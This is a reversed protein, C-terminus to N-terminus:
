MIERKVSSEQALTLTQASGYFLAFSGVGASIISSFIKTMRYSLQHNMLKRGQLGTILEGSTLHKADPHTM